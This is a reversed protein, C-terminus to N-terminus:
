RIKNRFKKSTEPLDCQALFHLLPGKPNKSRGNQQLASIVHVFFIQDLTLSSGVDKQKASM